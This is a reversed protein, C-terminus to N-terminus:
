RAPRGTSPQAQGLWTRRRGSQRLGRYFAGDLKRVKDSFFAWSIIDRYKYGSPSLRWTADTVNEALGLDECASLIDSYVRSFEGNENEPLSTLDLEFLDLALRKRIREESSYVFGFDVQPLSGSNELYRRVADDVPVLPLWRLYDVTNTYTRAGLGIGLVPVGHFQLVKQLYGGREPIIFRNNTQQQYGSGLLLERGVDYRKYLEPGRELKAYDKVGAFWADPRLTLFYTSVTEPRMDLLRRVSREWTADTQGSFGIILDTSLNPIEAIKVHDVAREIEFTGALARGASRLEAQDLSQVGINIRTVGSQKLERLRELGRRDALSDPSAEICIEKATSRWGPSIRELKCLIRNFDALSLLSPTGGGFYITVIKSQTLIPEMSELEECIATAYASYLEESKSTITYLNCFGCKYRCFPIHIYLNLARGPSSQADDEWINQTDVAQIGRYASRPPYTYVFPPIVQREIAGRLADVFNESM